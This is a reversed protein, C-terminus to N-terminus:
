AMVEVKEFWEPWVEAPHYGYSVAARDALHWPLGVDHAERVTNGSWRLKRGIATASEHVLVELEGLRFERPRAKM